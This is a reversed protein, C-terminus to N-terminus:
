FDISEAKSYVWRTKISSIRYAILLVIEKVKWICLGNFQVSVINVFLVASECSSFVTYKAQAVNLFQYAFYLYEFRTDKFSM